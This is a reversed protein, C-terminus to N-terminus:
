CVEVLREKFKPCFKGPVKRRKIVYSVEILRLNKLFYKIRNIDMCKRFFGIFQLLYELFDLFYEWSYLYFLWIVLGGGVVIVKTQTVKEDRVSDAAM